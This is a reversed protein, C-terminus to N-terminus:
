GNSEIHLNLGKLAIDAYENAIRFTDQFKYKNPSFTFLQNFYLGDSITMSKSIIIQVLLNHEAFKLHFVTGRSEISECFEKPTNSQFKNLYSSVDGDTECHREIKINQVSISTRNELIQFLNAFIDKVQEPSRPSNLIATVEELGFKIDLFSEGYFRYFSVFNDSPSNNDFKLDNLRIGFLKMLEEILMLRNSELVVSLMPKDYIGHYTVGTQRPHVILM